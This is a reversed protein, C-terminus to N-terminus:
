VITKDIYREEIQRKLSKLHVLADTISKHFTLADKRTMTKLDVQDCKIKLIDVATVAERPLPDYYVVEDIELKIQHYRAYDTLEIIRTERDESAFSFYNDEVQGETGEFYNGDDMKIWM